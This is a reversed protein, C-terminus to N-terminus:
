KKFYLLPNSLWLILLVAACSSLLMWLSPHAPIYGWWEPPHCLGSLLINWLGVLKYKGREKKKRGGGCSLLSGFCLVEELPLKEWSGRNKFWGMSFMKDTHPSTYLNCLHWTYPIAQSLPPIQSAHSGLLTCKISICLMPMAVPTWRAPVDWFWDTVGSFSTVPDSLLISQAEGSVRQPFLLSTGTEPAVVPSGPCPSQAIKNAARALAARVVAAWSSEEKEFTCYLNIQWLM